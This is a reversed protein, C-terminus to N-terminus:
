KWARKMKEIMIGYDSSGVELRAIGGECTSCLWAKGVKIIDKIGREPVQGCFSCVPLLIAKNAGTVDNAGTDSEKSM